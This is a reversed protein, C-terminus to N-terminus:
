CVAAVQSGKLPIRSSLPIDLRPLRENTKDENKQDCFQDLIAKRQEDNLATASRLRSELEARSPKPRQACSSIGANPDAKRLVHAGLWVTLTVAAFIAMLTPEALRCVGIDVNELDEESAGPILPGSYTKPYCRQLVGCRCGLRCGHKAGTRNGSVPADPCMGGGEIGLFQALAHHTKATEAVYIDVRSEALGVVGLIDTSQQPKQQATAAVNTSNAADATPSSAESKVRKLVLSSKGVSVELSEVQEPHVGPLKGHASGRAPTALAAAGPAAAQIHTGHPTPLSAELVRSHHEFEPPESDRMSKALLAPGALFAMIQLLSM